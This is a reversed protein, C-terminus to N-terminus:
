VFIKQLATAKKKVNNEQKYLKNTIYNQLFGISLSDRLM